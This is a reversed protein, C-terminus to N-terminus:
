NVPPIDLQKVFNDGLDAFNKNTQKNNAASPVM